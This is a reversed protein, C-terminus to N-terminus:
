GQWPEDFSGGYVSPVKSGMPRLYTTLQGRHHVTHSKAFSLYVFNPYQFAGFFDVTRLLQEPTLKRVANLAAAINTEYWTALETITNPVGAPPNEAYKMMQEFSFNAIAELFWVDSTALHQALEWASRANPDPRYDRKSEPVAAIVRQTIKAEDALSTVIFDRFTAAFEPSYLPTPTVSAATSM